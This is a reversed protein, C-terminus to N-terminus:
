FNKIKECQRKINLSGCNRSFYIPYKKVNWNLFTVIILCYQTDFFHVSIFCCDFNSCRNAFHSEFFIRLTFRSQKKKWRANERECFFYVFVVHLAIRATHLDCSPSCVNIRYIRFDLQTNNSQAHPLTDIVDIQLDTRLPVIEFDTICHRRAREKENKYTKKMVLQIVHSM